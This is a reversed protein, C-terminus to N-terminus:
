KNAIYILHVIIMIMQLLVPISSAILGARGGARAMGEKLPTVESTVQNKLEERTKSIELRIESVTDKVEAMDGKVESMDKHLRDLDQIVAIKYEGWGNGPEKVSM